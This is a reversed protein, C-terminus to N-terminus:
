IGRYPNEIQKVLKEIKSLRNVIDSIVTVLSTYPEYGLVKVASDEIIGISGSNEYKNHNTINQQNIKNSASTM